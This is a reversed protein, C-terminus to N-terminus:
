SKKLDLGERVTHLQRYYPAGNYEGVKKYIGFKDGHHDAANGSTSVLIYNESSTRHKGTNNIDNIKTRNSLACTVKILDKRSPNIKDAYRWIKRGDGYIEAQDSPNMSRAGGSSIFGRPSPDSINNHVLWNGYDINLVNLYAGSYM